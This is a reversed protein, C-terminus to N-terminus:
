VSLDAFAPNSYLDTIKQVNGQLDVRWLASNASVYLDGEGNFAIGESRRFKGQVLPVPKVPFGAEDARTSDAPGAAPDDALGITGLLLVLVPTLKSSSSTGFM